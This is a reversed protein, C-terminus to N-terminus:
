CVWSLFTVRTTEGDGPLVQDVYRQAFSSKSMDWYFDALGRFRHTHKIIGAAEVEYKGVNDELKRRLVKPDDLRATSCINVGDFTQEGPESFDIDGLWPGKSGRKRKRGTRKPVTVKLVV